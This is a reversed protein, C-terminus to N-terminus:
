NTIVKTVPVDHSLTPIDEDQVQFDFALCVKPTNHPISKLFRDYYGAGHGLRNGKKDFAIGPLVLFDLKQPRLLRKCARKPQYIGLPGLETDKKIDSIESIILRKRKVDTVPLFIRKGKKLAEKIIPITDVEYYKGAYLLINKAKKFEGLNFLKEKLALSGQRRDEERQAKLKELITKRIDSKIKVRSEVM